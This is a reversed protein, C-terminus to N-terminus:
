SADAQFYTDVPIRAIREERERLCDPCIDGISDREDSDRLAEDLRAKYEPDLHLERCLRCVPVLEKFRSIELLTQRLEGILKQQRHLTSKARFVVSAAIALAGLHNFMNWYSIWRSSYRLGTLWETSSWALTTVLTFAVIGGPPLNWSAIAAVLLYLSGIHVERGTVWDM